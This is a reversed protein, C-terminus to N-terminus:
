SAPHWATEDWPFFGCQSPRQIDAGTMGVFNKEKRYHERRLAKLHM